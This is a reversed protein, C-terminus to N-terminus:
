YRSWNDWWDMKEAPMKEGAEEKFGGLHNFSLGDLHLHERAPWPDQADALNGIHTNRLTLTGLEWNKGKWVTHMGPRSLLLDGTISASSLNLDALIAGSLDLNGGIHAFVMDVAQAFHADRIFLDGGVQLVEADLKRDFNAGAMSIQGTINARNLTVSATNPGASRMVLSGIAQLFEAASNLKAETCSAKNQGVSRMVLSGLAQLFEADLKGFSAGDMDIQGKIEAGTLDVDKFRAKNQDDSRMYLNGGVRLNDAVLKGGLSAGIMDVNGAVNARRLIVDKFSAKNQGDSRM